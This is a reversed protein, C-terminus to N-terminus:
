HVNAHIHRKSKTNQTKESLYKSTSNNPVEKDGTIAKIKFDIKHQISTAIGAKKQM